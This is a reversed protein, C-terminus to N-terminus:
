CHNTLLHPTYDEQSMLKNDARLTSLNIKTQNLPM